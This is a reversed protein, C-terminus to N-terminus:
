IQFSQSRYVKSHNYNRCEFARFVSLSIQAQYIEIDQNSDKMPGAKQLDLAVM